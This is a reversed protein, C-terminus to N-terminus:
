GVLGERIAYHTLEANNKMKMKTLMRARYASITKVSLSLELAIHSVSKGSAIMCMVQYERDSLKEHPAKHLNGDVVEFALMEAVFPTIYKGGGSVKKIADILKEAASEKTLYGAAGAKIVRLAYQDEPYSSLVLVSCKKNYDRIERIIELGSRGPMSIDLLVVDFNSKSLQSLVEKSNAAEGAVVIDKSSSLIRKLGERLITHDDAILIRIM